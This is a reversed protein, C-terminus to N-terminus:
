IKMARQVGPRAAIENGWRELNSLGAVCDAMAGKTRWYGAYLSLDAITFESGAAYKRKGLLDDWVKFLNRLRGKLLEVTPAHADKAMRAANVAGFQPTIDTSASMYAEMFAPRAAPDKPLFRGSKEAAYMLIASSQHLTVPKGGPGESDVMVPIQAFPNLAMFHPTKHEGKMLDIPHFTYKLGCEELALRARMGNSTGAAYLDIM